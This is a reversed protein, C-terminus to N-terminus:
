AFPFPQGHRNKQGPLLKYLMTGPRGPGM